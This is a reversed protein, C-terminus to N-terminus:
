ENDEDVTVVLDEDPVLNKGVDTKLKDLMKKMDAKTIAEDPLADVDNGLDDLEKRIAQNGARIQTRLAKDRAREADRFRGFDRELRISARLAAGVTNDEPAGPVKQNIDMDEELYKDYDFIVIPDPRLALHPDPGHGLLGDGSNPSMYQEMQGKAVFHASTDGLLVWHMHESFTPPLRKWVAWGVSRAVKLVEHEEHEDLNSTSTDICGGFDHAHKSDIAGGGGLELMYAGQVILPAFGLKEVVVDWAAWMRMNMFVRHDLGPGPPDRFAARFPNPKGADEMFEVAEAM